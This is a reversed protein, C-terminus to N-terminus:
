KMKEYFGLSGEFTAWNVFIAWDLGLTILCNASYFYEDFHSKKSPIPVSM